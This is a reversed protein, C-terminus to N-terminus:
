GRYRRFITAWPSLRPFRLMDSTGLGPLPSVTRQAAGAPAQLMCKGMDWPQRRPSGQAAAAAASVRRSYVSVRFNLMSLAS